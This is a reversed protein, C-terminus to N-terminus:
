PIRTLEDDWEVEKKLRENLKQLTFEPQEIIAQYLEYESKAVARERGIKVILDFIEEFKDTGQYEKALKVLGELDQKQSEYYDNEFKKLDLIWEREDSGDLTSWIRYKLHMEWFENVIAEIEEESYM